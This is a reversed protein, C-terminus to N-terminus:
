KKNEKNITTKLEVNMIPKRNEFELYFSVLQIEKATMEVIYVPEKLKIEKTPPFLNLETNSLNGYKKFYKELERKNKIDVYKKNIIQVIKM